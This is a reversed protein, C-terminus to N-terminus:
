RSKIKGVQTFNNNFQNTRGGLAGNPHVNKELENISPGKKHYISDKCISTDIKM